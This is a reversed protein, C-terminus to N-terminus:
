NYAYYLIGWFGIRIILAGVTCLSSHSELSHLFAPVVRFGGRLGRILGLGSLRANLTYLKPDHALEPLSAM